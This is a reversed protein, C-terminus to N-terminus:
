ATWQDGVVHHRSGDASSRSSETVSAPTIAPTSRAGDVRAPRLADLQAMGTCCVSFREM